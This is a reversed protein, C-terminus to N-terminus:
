KRSPLVRELLRQVLSFLMATSWGFLMIGNMATFGSMIRWHPGLTIDGYGLTTFTTLTFYVEEELTTVQTIGPILLFVVAWLVVEAFHLLM